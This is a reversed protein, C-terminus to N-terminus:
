LGLDLPPLEDEDLQDELDPLKEPDEGEDAAETPQLLDFVLDALRGQEAALQELEREQPRTLPEGDAADQLEETRRRLDQQLLKLLKLEALDRLNQGQQGGGGGSGGGGNNKPAQEEDALAHLVPQLRALANRQHRQAANGTQQQLLRESAARMQEAAGELALLFVEAGALKTTLGATDAAIREQQRALDSLSLAQGRTLAGAQQRLQELRATEQLARQQQDVLGRISDEIRALQERALDQEAQRRTQALEEQAEDLDQQAQRAADDAAAVDGAEGAARSAAMREAGQEASGAAREAQLRKLQRAFREIEEELQQQERRLRQLQKKREPSDPQRQTQDIKKQLGRQQQRLAQLQAEAERLKAVLRSLEHERRNALINLLEALEQGIKTQRQTAQGLRNESLERGSQRMQGSVARRRAEHLADDLTAAALPDEESLRDRMQQMEQLSKDFRRALENQRATLQQLEARQQPSLDDLDQTLTTQGVQQTRRQIEEQEQRIQRVQRAFRRYDAWQSLDGLLRELADIVRDQASGATGLADGVAAPQPAAAQASKLAATLERHVTPLPEDALQQLVSQLQRMRREIEGGDIRNNALDALLSAIHLPIGETPSTLTRTVQRQNLEAAQLNDLDQKGLAGVERLQIQLASTQGRVDRQMKLARTLEGLIFAQREALRDELQAATIVTIRRPAVTQGVQPLYDAARAAVALETGPPLELKALDWRHEVVRSEGTESSSLGGESNPPVRPPGRYLQRSFEGHESRDSRTYVLTLDHVALDDKVLIRLPVVAEPTVFLNHAPQELSVSPPADTVARIDWREDQGGGLQERDTLEFWYAGSQDIEFDEPAVEFSFGDNRVKAAIEPGGELQIAAAHLPKTSTGTVAVRTGRLARIRKDSQSPSWGTYAPPHLTVRFAEVAPPEIVDLRIWPMSDDDGGEARYEFPRVVGERRAFMTGGTYRMKDVEYRYSETGEAFRYHIRVEEPLRGRRDILEVEFPQGLALRTPPDQFQLDNKKPWAAEGLPAALRALALGASAPDLAVLLLALLAVGAATFVARRAPHPDLVSQLDLREVEATAEHIVARRLAPSGAQPDDESQQLFAIASSLRDQLQPYRREIRQAVDVESTRRALPRLLFRYVSWGLTGLVALLALIRIGPDHFRILYDALGLVAAVALVASFVCSWGHLLVLRRARRRLHAVHQQLPHPM